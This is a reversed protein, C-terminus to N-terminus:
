SFDPLEFEHEKISLREKSDHREQRSTGSAVRDYEASSSRDWTSKEPSVKDSNLAIATKVDDLDFNVASSMPFSGKKKRKRSDYVPSKLPPFRTVPKEKKEMEEAIPKIKMDRVM